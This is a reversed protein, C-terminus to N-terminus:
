DWQVQGTAVHLVGDDTRFEITVFMDGSDDDVQFSVHFRNNFRVGADYQM